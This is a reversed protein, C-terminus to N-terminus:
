MKNKKATTFIVNSGNWLDSEPLIDDNFTITRFGCEELLPKLDQENFFHTWFRYTEINEDSDIINHQYLIVKEEKYIFSESLALYPSNKWFGSKCAEWNKPTKKHEIDTDKLVDFILKGNPKLAAYINKLLKKREQPFLVGLDAYILLVLDYKEKQLEINLYDANIYEIDLAKEKASNGAYEISNKSIDVGTVQHGKQAFLETYIGPGCGLDLITLSNQKPHLDLIWEITRLISTRKRSALDIDPDLHINLLQKSIHPNSWMFANGKEYIAPKESKLIIDTIKM